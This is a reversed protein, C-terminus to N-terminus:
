QKMFMEIIHTDKSDWSFFLTQFIVNWNYIGKLFSKKINLVANKQIYEIFPQM